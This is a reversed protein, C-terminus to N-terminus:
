SQKIIYQEFKDKPMPRTYLYGQAHICGHELLFDQQPSNEVGEAIISLNLSKAIHIVASVIAEDDVDGPIDQLFSQDIKIKQIPLRKLYALSSYGTGFDDISIKFGLKSIEELLSTAAQHDSMAYGETIEFEIWEPKCGTKKLTNKIIDLIAKDNLQRVSLNISLVEIPLNQKKWKSIDQMAQKIVWKGIAIIQGSSEAIPIFKIPMILGKTPHNWRILAEAGIIQKTSANIQSQYYLEFEDNQIAKHLDEELSIREQAQQSLDQTYFAYNDRGNNKAKYMAIDAFRLLTEADTSDTPSITIGISTTIHFHHENILLPKKLLDLINQAIKAADLPSKLNELLIAFEDGGHRSVTDGKRISKKLKQSVMKLVKDGISHGFTDNINKFHDLDIFLVAHYRNPQIRQELLHTLREMFLTRNAVGTLVDYKAYQRLQKEKEKRESIDRAVCLISSVNGNNDIIPTKVTEYYGRYSGDKFKLEDEYTISEKIKIVKKDYEISINACEKDFFDEDRKGIIDSDDVSVFNKFKKNYALYKGDCDKLWILDPLLNIIKSIHECSNIEHNIHQDEHQIKSLLEINLNFLNNSM